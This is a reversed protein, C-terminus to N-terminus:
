VEEFAIHPLDRRCVVKVLVDEPIFKRCVGLYSLAIPEVSALVLIFLRVQTPDEGPKNVVMKVM